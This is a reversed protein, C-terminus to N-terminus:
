LSASDVADTNRAEVKQEEDVESADATAEETTAAARRKKNIAVALIAVVVAMFGGAASSLAVALENDGASSNGGKKATDIVALLTSVEEVPALEEAAKEEAAVEVTEATIEDDDNQHHHHRHHHRHHQRVHIGKIKTSGTESVCFKEMGVKVEQAGSCGRKVDDYDITFHKLTKFAEAQAKTLTIDKMPNTDLFRHTTFLDCMRVCLTPDADFLELMCTRLVVYLTRLKPLKFLVPSLQTLKNGTLLSNRAM